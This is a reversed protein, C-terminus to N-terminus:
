EAALPGASPAAGAAQKAERVFALEDYDPVERALPRGGVVVIRDAHPRSIVENLSRANLVIFRAAGGTRLVGHDLSMLAAPARGVLAPADGHPRDLHVIRVAQRFTDLMDHDGYAYFADRCNDGAVAVTVGKARLEKV